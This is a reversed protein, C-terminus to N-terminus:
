EKKPVNVSVPGDRPIWKQHITVVLALIAAGLSLRLVNRVALSFLHIVQNFVGTPLSQQLLGRDSVNALAVGKLQDSLTSTQINNIMGSNVVTGGITVGIAAGLLQVTFAISLTLPALSPPVHQQALGIAIGVVIGSGIGAIVMYISAKLISTDDVFTQVMGGGIVMIFSGGLVLPNPYRCVTLLAGAVLSFIGSVMLFPM